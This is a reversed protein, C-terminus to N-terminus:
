GGLVALLEADTWEGPTAIMSFITGANDTYLSIQATYVGEQPQFVKGQGSDIGDVVGLDSGNSSIQYYIIGPGHNLITISKAPVGLGSQSSDGNMIDYKKLGADFAGGFAKRFVSFQVHRYNPM